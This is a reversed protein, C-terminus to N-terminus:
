VYRMNRWFINRKVPTACNIAGVIVFVDQCEDATSRCYNTEEHCVTTTGTTSIVKINLRFNFFIYLSFSSFCIPIPLTKQRTHYQTQKNTFFNYHHRQRNYSKQLFLFSSVRQFNKYLITFYKKKIGTKRRISDWTQINKIFM